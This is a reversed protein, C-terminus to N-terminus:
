PRQDDGALADSPPGLVLSLVSAISTDSLMSERVHAIQRTQRNRRPAAM